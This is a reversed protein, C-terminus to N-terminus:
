LSVNVKLAPGQSSHLFHWIKLGDEPKKINAKALKSAYISKEEMLHNWIKNTENFEATNEQLYISVFSGM